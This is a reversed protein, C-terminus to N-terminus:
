NQRSKPCNQRNGELWARRLEVLEALQADTISVVVWFAPDTASQIQVRVGEATFQCDGFLSVSDSACITFV